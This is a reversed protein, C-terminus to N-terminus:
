RDRGAVSRHRGGTPPRGDSRGRIPLASGLDVNARGSVPGTARAISPVENGAVGGATTTGRRIGAAAYAEDEDLMERELLTYALRDLQERRDRLTAVAQAYCDDVIRRVEEDVIRWVEEDILRTVQELDREAGSTTDGYVIQEAARGGLAGVIRGRLYTASHGYRDGPPGQGTAGPTQCRPIISVTGVPDAGPTLMGVLARGSEHFATRRKEQPSLLIDWATGLLHDLDPDGTATRDCRGPRSSPDLIEGAVRISRTALVEAPPAPEREGRVTAVVARVLLRLDLGLSMRRIYVRDKRLREAPPVYSKEIQAICAIGPRVTHREAFGPVEELDHRVVMARLPRPGVVSMTGTLVNLLEPLEDLHWRRLLRGVVLTRPDDLSAVVPGTDREAEYRMSRFKLERFTIGGRGVSNKIFFIPGPEEFWILVAILFWLPLALAIGVSAAVVDFTRKGRPEPPYYLNASTHHALIQQRVAPTPPANNEVLGSPSVTFAGDCVFSGVIVLTTAVQDIHRYMWYFATTVVAATVLFGARALWGPARGGLRSGVAFAMCLGPLLSGFLLWLNM